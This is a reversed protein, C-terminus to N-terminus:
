SQRFAMRIRERAPLEIFRWLLTATVVLVVLAAIMRYPGSVGPIKDMLNFVSQHLLYIAYSIEGFFVFLPASLVKSLLGKQKAFVIILLAFFPACYVHSFYFSPVRGLTKIAAESEFLQSPIFMLLFICAVAGCELITAQLGDPNAIKSYLQAAAMGLMFELLRTVPFTYLLGNLRLGDVSAFFSAYAAFMMLSTACVAFTLKWWWSRDWNMILIPFMLYFFAEDSLSWAPPNYGFYFFDIPVWSQLLLVQMLAMFAGYLTSLAAVKAPDTIIAFVLTAIYLPILRAARAILFNNTATSNRLQPYIYSLIFGSLVFFFSVGQQLPVNSVWNLPLGFAGQCHWAVIM